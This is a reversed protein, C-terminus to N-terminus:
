IPPIDFVIIFALFPILAALFGEIEATTLLPLLFRSFAGRSESSTPAARLLTLFAPPARWVGLPPLAFPLPPSFLIQSWTPQLL